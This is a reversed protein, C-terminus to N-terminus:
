VLSPMVLFLCGNVYVSHNEENRAEDKGLLVELAGLDTKRDIIKRIKAGSLGWRPM